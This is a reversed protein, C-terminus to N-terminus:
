SFFRKEYPIIHLYFNRVEYRRRQIQKGYQVHIPEIILFVGHLREEGLHHQSNFRPGCKVVHCVGGLHLRGILILTRSLCM